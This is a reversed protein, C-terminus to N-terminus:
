ERFVSEAQASRRRRVPLQFFTQTPDVEAAGYEAPLRPKVLPRHASLPNTSAGHGSAWVRVRRKEWRGRPLVGWAGPIGATRCGSESLDALQLRQADLCQQRQLCLSGSSARHPPVADGVRSCLSMGGPHSSEDRLPPLVWAGASPSCVAGGLPPPPDVGAGGSPNPPAPPCLAPEPAFGELDARVCRHGSPLSAM